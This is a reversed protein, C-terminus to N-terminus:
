LPIIKSVKCFQRGLCLLSSFMSSRHKVWKRANTIMIDNYFPYLWPRQTHSIHVEPNNFLRTWEMLGWSLEQSMGDKNDLSVCINGLGREGSKIQNQVQYSNYMGKLKRVQLIGNWCILRLNGRRIRQLAPGAPAAMGRLLKSNWLTSVYSTM